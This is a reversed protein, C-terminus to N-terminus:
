PKIRGWNGMAGLDFVTAFGARKLIGAAVMSRSGSHCYVIVPIKRSGIEKARRDLENLPLNLAGDVHGAAYEGETRVDVLKAGEQVAKKLEAIPAKPRRANLTMAVFLVAIVGAVVLTPTM